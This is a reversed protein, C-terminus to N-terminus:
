PRPNAYPRRCNAHRIELQQSAAVGHRVGKGRSVFVATHNILDARGGVLCPYPPLDDGVVLNSTQLAPKAPPSFPPAARFIALDSEARRSTVRLVDQGGNMIQM